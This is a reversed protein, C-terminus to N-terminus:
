TDVVKSSYFQQLTQLISSNILYSTIHSLTYYVVNSDKPTTVNKSYRKRDGEKGMKM